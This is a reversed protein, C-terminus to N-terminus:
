WWPCSKTSIRSEALNLYGGCQTLGQLWWAAVNRSCFRVTDRRYPSAMSRSHCSKDETRGLSSGWSM